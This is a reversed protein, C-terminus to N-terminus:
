FSTSLLASHQLCKQSNSFNVIANIDSLNMLPIGKTHSIESISVLLSVAECTGISEWTEM